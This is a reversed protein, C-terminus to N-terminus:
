RLHVDRAGNISVKNGSLMEITITGTHNKGSPDRLVVSCSYSHGAKQAVGGPCRAYGVTLKGAGFQKVYDHILHEGSKASDFGGCAALGLVCAL